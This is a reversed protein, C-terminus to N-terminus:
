GNKEKKILKNLVFSDLNFYTRKFKSEKINKENMYPGAPRRGIKGNKGYGCTGEAIEQETCHTEKLMEEGQTTVNSNDENATVEDYEREGPNTAEVDEGNVYAEIDEPEIYFIRNANEGQDPNMQIELPENGPDYENDIYLNGEDDRKMGTKEREAEWEEPSLDGYTRQETFFDKLQLKSENINDTDDLDLYFEEKYDEILERVDEHYQNSRECKEIGGGMYDPSDWRELLKELLDIVENEDPSGQENLLKSIKMIKRETLQDDAGITTIGNRKLLHVIDRFDYEDIGPFSFMYFGDNQKEVEYSIPESSEHGLVRTCRRYQRNPIGLTYM